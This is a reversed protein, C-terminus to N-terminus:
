YGALAAAYQSTCEIAAALGVDTTAWGWWDLRRRHLVAVNIRQTGKRQSRVREPALKVVLRCAGADAGIDVVLCWIVAPIPRAM